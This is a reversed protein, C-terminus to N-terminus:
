ENDEVDDPIAKDIGPADVPLFGEKRLFSFVNEVEKFKKSGSAFFSLSGNSSVRVIESKGLTPRLGCTFFIMFDIHERFLSAESLDDGYYSINKLSSGFAPVKAHAFSLAYSEPKKTLARVLADVAISIHKLKPTIRKSLQDELLHEVIKKTHSVIIIRSGSRRCIVVYRYPKGTREEDEGRLAKESIYEFKEWDSGQIVSVFKIADCELLDSRDIIKESRDMLFGGLNNLNYTTSTKM